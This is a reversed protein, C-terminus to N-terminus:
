DGDVFSAFKVTTVNKVMSVDCMVNFGKSSFNSTVMNSYIGINDAYICPSVAGESTNVAYIYVPQEGIKETSLIDLFGHYKGCKHADDVDTRLKNAELCYLEADPDGPQGGIYVNINIMGANNATDFAWGKVAVPGNDCFVDDVHCRLTSSASGSKLIVRGKGICPDSTGNGINVAYIYVTQEGTKETSIAELFGHNEGCNLANNVDTRLKDAKITHLEADPDDSSGGIYVKIDLSESIDDKDFAWGQVVLADGEACIYDKCATINSNAASDLISVASKCICISAKTKANVVYVYIENDGKKDTAIRESFGHNKGCQYCEDVDERLSEASFSHIEANPNGPQGGIYVDIVMTESIDSSDFAWGEIFM